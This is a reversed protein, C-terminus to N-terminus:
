QMSHTVVVDVVTLEVVVVVTDLVVVVVTLVVVRVVPAHLPSVSPWLQM